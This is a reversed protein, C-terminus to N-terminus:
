KKGRFKSIDFIKAGGSDTPTDDNKSTQSEDGAEDEPKGVAVVTPKSDTSPTPTAAPPAMPQRGESQHDVTAPV